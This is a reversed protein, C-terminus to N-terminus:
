IPTPPYASGYNLPAIVVQGTLDLFDDSNGVANGELPISQKRCIHQMREPIRSQTDQLRLPDEVITLMLGADMHWEMHCHLLWIGPNDARFRVIYFSGPNIFWTDRRMPTGHFVVQNGGRYFRNDFSDLELTTKGLDDIGPDGTKVDSHTYIGAGRAALQVNHGHIHIPHPTDDLNNIVLEVINNGELVLPNTNRGYVDANVADYDASLATYLTPVRQPIYTIGNFGSRYQENRPTTQQFFSLNLVFQQDVGDKGLLPAEDYPILDNDDWLEFTYIYPATRIIPNSENYIIPVSTNPQFGTKPWARRDLDVVNMAALMAYNKASTPQTKLLVGYRQASGFFLNDVTFPKTYVGDAEIITFNHDELYLLFSALTSMNIIRLFYTRNPQVFLETSPSDNILARNPVPSAGGWPNRAVAIYKVHLDAAQEKSKTLKSEGVYSASEFIGHYWDTITMVIEEDYDYPNNPDHIILPGRLGDVYQGPSHSHYWYTGPQDVKFKYTYSTGPIIPCQSAMPTGDNANNDQQFIGHWHITMSQNGLSNHVNVIITDHINATITPSPWQGNIAIVPRTYEGDPNATIWGIDWNYTVVFAYALPFSSLYLTVTIKLIFQSLLM